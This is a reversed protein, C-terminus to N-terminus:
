FTKPPAHGPMGLRRISRFISIWRFLNMEIRSGTRHNSSSRNVDDRSFPVVDLKVGMPAGLTFPFAPSLIACWFCNLKYWRLCTDYCCKARSAGPVLSVRFCLMGVSAIPRAREPQMFLSQLSLHFHTANKWLSQLPDIQLSVSTIKKKIHCWNELMHIKKKAMAPRLESCM